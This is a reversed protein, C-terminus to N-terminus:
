RWVRYESSVEDGTLKRFSYWGAYDTSQGCRWCSVRM